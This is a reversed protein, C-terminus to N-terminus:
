WNPKCPVQPSRLVRNRDQSTWSEATVVRQSSTLWIRWNRLNVCATYLATALWQEAPTYMEKCAGKVSNFHFGSCTRVIHGCKVAGSANVFIYTFTFHSDQLKSHFRSIQSGTQEVPDELRRHLHCKRNPILASDEEFVQAKCLAFFTYDKYSIEYNGINEVHRLKNAEVVDQGSKSSHAITCDWGKKKEDYM